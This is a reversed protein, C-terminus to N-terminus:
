QGRFRAIWHATQATLSYQIGRKRPIVVGLHRPVLALTL